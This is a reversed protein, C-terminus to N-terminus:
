LSDRSATTSSKRATAARDVTTRHSSCAWVSSSDRCTLSRSCHSGGPADSTVESVAGVLELLTLKLPERGEAEVGIPATAAAAM